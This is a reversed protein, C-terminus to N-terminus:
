IMEAAKSRVYFFAVLIMGIACVAYLSSSSVKAILVGALISSLPILGMSLVNTVSAVKGLMKREVKKQMIINVPVNFSVNALGLGVMSLAMVILVVNISIWNGYYGILVAAIMVVPIVMAVLAMKLDHGQSEKAVRASIILSMVIAAISLGIQIASMWATPSLFGDFLYSIETGLGFKIFNPLGVSFIPSFFFNVFLAMILIALVAKENYLYVLGEKVDSVVNKL